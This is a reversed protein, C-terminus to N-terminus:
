PLDLEEVIVGVRVTKGIRAEWWEKDFPVEKAEGDIRFDFADNSEPNSVTVWIDFGDDHVNLIKGEVWNEIGTKISEM